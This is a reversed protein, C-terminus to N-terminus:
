QIKSRKLVKKSIPKIQLEKKKLNEEVIKKAKNILEDTIPLLSSM